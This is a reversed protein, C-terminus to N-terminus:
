NSLLLEKFLIDDIKAPSIIKNIRKMLETKIMIIGSTGSLEESKLERLFLNIADKIVSSKSSLEDLIKEDSVKISLSMKLFSRSNNGSMIGVLIDDFEYYKYNESLEKKSNNTDTTNTTTQRFYSVLFYAIVVLAIITLPILFLLIRKGRSVPDKIQIEDANFDEQKAAKEKEKM